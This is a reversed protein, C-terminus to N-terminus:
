KRMRQRHIRELEVETMAKRVQADRWKKYATTQSPLIKRSYEGPSKGALHVVMRCRCRYIEQPPAEPDHPFRLLGHYGHFKENLPITEGHLHKHSPRIRMDMIGLWTKEIEAGSKEAEKGAMYAGYDSAGYVAALAFSTTENKRATSVRRSVHKPLDEVSVDQAIASMVASQTRQENYVIDKTRKLKRKRLSILGSTVLNTVIGLTIPWTEAGSLAMVYASENFGAVFAADLADNVRETAKTNADTLDIAIMKKIFAWRAGSFANMLRTHYESTKENERPQLAKLKPKLFNRLREEIRREPANYLGDFARLIANLAIDGPHIDNM